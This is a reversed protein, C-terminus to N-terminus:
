THSRAVEIELNIDTQQTRVVMSDGGTRQTQEVRPNKGIHQTRLAKPNKVRDSRPQLVNGM